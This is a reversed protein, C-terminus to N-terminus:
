RARRTQEILRDLPAWFAHQAAPSHEKPAAHVAQFGTSSVVTQYQKLRVPHDALHNWLALGAVAGAETDRDGVQILVRVAKPLPPLPVGSITGAPFVADIAAPVPLDWERADAAYYFVLSGGYSYGVAVVPLAPLGLRGFGIRLGARYASVRPRGPQDGVGLQYRPFIVASGGALLHDLWPRFQGVWPYSPSSPAAKWGHGFVVISRIPRLPTLLWVANAGVGFPGTLRGPSRDRGAWGTGIAWPACLVLLTLLTAIGVRAHRM